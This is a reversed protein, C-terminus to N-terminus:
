NVTVVTMTEGPANPLPASLQLKVMQAATPAALVLIAAILLFRM